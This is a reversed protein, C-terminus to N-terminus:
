ERGARRAACRRLLGFENDPLGRQVAAAIREAEARRGARAYAYGLAPIGRAPGGGPLRVATRIQEIAQDYRGQEIYVLRLHPGGRASDMAILNRLHREARLALGGLVQLFLM